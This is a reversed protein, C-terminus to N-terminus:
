SAVRHGGSVNSKGGAAAEPESALMKISDLGQAVYHEAEREGQQADRDFHGLREILQQSRHAFKGGERDTKRDQNREPVVVVLEEAAVTQLVQRVM